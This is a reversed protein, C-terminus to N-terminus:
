KAAFKDAILNLDIGHELYAKLGDLVTTFGGTNDIVAKVLDSGELKFGHNRIVVYTAEGSLARTEVEVTTVPDGWEFVIRQDPVLEKVFVAASVQYMDWYWTLSKGTELPGSARNFWFHKTLQPDIFAEYVAKAPRRILMQAEVVTSHNDEM